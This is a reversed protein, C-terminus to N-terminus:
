NLLSACKCSLMRAPRLYHSNKTTERHDGPSRRTNNNAEAQDCHDHYTTTTMLTKTNKNIM